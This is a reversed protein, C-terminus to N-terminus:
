VRRMRAMFFGDTRDVHPLLQMIGGRSRCMLAPPIHNKIDDEVFDKNNGLFYKINDENEEKSITCTSYLLTGGSKVYGSCVDLIERQLGALQAIDDSNKNVKIDPKRYLLGLASCPADVMVVDFARDFAAVYERADATRAICNDVDLREMTKEILRVRHEHIDIAVVEGDQAFQAAYASKGGPAACADLVRDRPKIGAAMVCIMSAESQVTVYGKKFMPMDEINSANKIYYADECYIGPEFRSYDGGCRIKNRRICTLSNGGTYEMMREAQEAGYDNIYKDCLWLPYSYMVHLYNASGEGPKPYPINGLERSINRLTANVFGKLGQKKGAAALKVSENVAASAPVSEFFLLQCVGLRLINRIVAHMRKAASFHDIVYDIRFLNEITTSALATAFRKDEASIDGKLASKLELNLYTKKSIVSSVVDLALQRANM